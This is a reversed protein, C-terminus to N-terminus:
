CDLINKWLNTFRIYLTASSVYNNQHIFEYSLPGCYIFLATAFKKLIETHRRQTPHKCVNQEANILVQRLIPTLGHGGTDFYKNSSSEKLLKSLKENQKALIEIEDLIKTYYIDSQPWTNDKM